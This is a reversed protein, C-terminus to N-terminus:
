PALQWHFGLTGWQRPTKADPQFRLAIVRDRLSKTIAPEDSIFLPMAETVRGSADVSISFRANEPDSLPVDRIEIVAPARRALEPGPIARLVAPSAEAVPQKARPTVEPLVPTAATFVRPPKPTTAPPEMARLHLEFGTYGPTFGPFHERAMLDAPEAPMLGFSKDQARHILALAEPDSPDLVLMRQPVADATQVSPYTIRFVVFFLGLLVALLLTLFVVYITSRDRIKWAFTLM